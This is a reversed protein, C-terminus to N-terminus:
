FRIFIKGQYSELVGKHQVCSFESREGKWSISTFKKKNKTKVLDTMSYSQGDMIIQLGSEVKFEREGASGQFIFPTKEFCIKWLNDRTINTSTNEISLMSGDAMYYLHQDYGGGSLPVGLPSDLTVTVGELLQFQKVHDAIENQYATLHKQVSVLLRDYGYVKKVQKVRVALEEDSLVISQSLLDDLPRGHVEVQEKWNNVHIFDLAYGLAAGVGYHRWKIVRDSVNDNDAYGQITTLLNTQSDFGPLLHFVDFTKMSVYDAMGEMRQQNQEWQISSSHMLAGRATHVAVFNKLCELKDLKPQPDETSNGYSKLFNALLLEEIQMLALNEPNLHDLYGDPDSHKDRFHTFQYQHFREHVLVLFPLYPDLQMVDLRFVFATQGEIEFQPNMPVDSLDWQDKDTYLVNMKEVTLKQWAHSTSKLNFAYLHGNDFTIILPSTTLDYGPWVQSAQEEHLATIIQAITKVSELEQLPLIAVVAQQQEQGILGQSAILAPIGTGVLLAIGVFFTFINRM